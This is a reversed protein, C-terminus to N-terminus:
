SRSVNWLKVAKDSTACALGKGDPSFAVSNVVGGAKLDMKLEGTRADWVKLEGDPGDGGCAILRGDPSFVISSVVANPAYDLSRKPAGGGVDWLKLTGDYGGTALTRGDPSFAVATPADHAKIEQRLKGARVDWLRVAGDVHGASALMSGDPSFAVSETITSHGELTQKLEGTEADWLRVENTATALTGFHRVARRFTPSVLSVHLGDLRSADIKHVARM